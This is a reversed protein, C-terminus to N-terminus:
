TNQNGNMGAILGKDSFNRNCRWLRFYKWNAKM